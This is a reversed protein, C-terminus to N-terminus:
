GLSVQDGWPAIWRELVETDGASEIRYSEGGISNMWTYQRKAYRRTAQQILEVARSREIAGDLHSMLEAYGVTRMGPSQSSYGRGRLGEVEELFGDSMMEITRQNIRQYLEGRPPALLLYCPQLRTAESTELSESISDSFSSYAKGTQEICALARLTKVRNGPAHAAAAAPDLEELRAHIEESSVEALRATLEAMIVADVSPAALGEFLSRIYFGTGGVVVPVRGKAIVSDIATRAERSYAGASYREEPEIIDILHHGVAERDSLTPKATGIDMGRYIQRSDAAIIEIEPFRRALGMALSSKGSATPGYIVPIVRVTSRQADSM